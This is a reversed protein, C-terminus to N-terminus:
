KLLKTSYINEGNANNISMFYIGRSLGQLDTLSTSNFGKKVSWVQQKVVRGQQDLMKVFVTENNNDTLELAVSAVFPNPYTTVKVAAAASSVAKMTAVTSYTFKGDIDTEKLRYYIVGTAINKDTYNYYTTTNTNGSAKVTAITNWNNGDASKEVEFHDSNIESYTSWDLQADSGKQSADLKLGTVPLSSGGSVSSCSSFTIDDIALDNGCGGTSNNIIRYRVTTVNLPLTFSGGVKVWTAVTTQPIFASTFSGLQSFTTGGNTSVDIAFQLKPLLPNPSCVGIPDVNMVYLYVTYLTNTTLGTVTARYFEGATYSANVVLMRGKSDGTHDSSNFWEPRGQSSKNLQYDGDALDGSNYNYTTQGAPLAATGNGTGFTEKFKVTEGTCTQAQTQATFCITFLAIALTYLNLKM